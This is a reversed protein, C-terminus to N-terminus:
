AFAETSGFVTSFHKKAKQCLKRSKKWDRISKQLTCAMDVMEQWIRKELDRGFRRINTERSGWTRISQGNEPMVLEESYLLQRANLKPTSAHLFFPRIVSHDTPNPPAFDEHPDHQVIAKGHFEETTIERFGVAAPERSVQYYPENLAVAATLFTDKDGEGPAGQSLIPYYYGPGYINYYTALLLTHLHKSKDMLLQGSESSKVPLGAPYRELGAITYFVRDETAIWYDPWLVLGTSNFPEVTMLLAPDHLAICDADMFIVQEFSSFVMALLKLQYTKVEFPTDERLFNEIVYCEAGLAPLINECAEQEYEKSQMFVHVPLISNTKRLLRVSLIAPPLLRGGAVTVIGRGRYLTPAKENLERFGIHGVLLAQKERLSAVDKEKLGISQPTPRREGVADKPNATVNAGAPDKPKQKVKANWIIEIADVDPKAAEIIQAWKAWFDVVVTSPKNAQPHTRSLNVPLPSVRALERTYVFLIGLLTVIFIPLLAYLLRPAM